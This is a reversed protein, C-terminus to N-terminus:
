VQRPLLLSFNKKVICHSFSYQQCKVTVFMGSRPPLVVKDVSIRLAQRREDTKDDLVRPAVLKRFNIVAGYERTYTVEFM